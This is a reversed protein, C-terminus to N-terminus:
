HIITPRSRWVKILVYKNYAAFPAIRRGICCAPLSPSSKKQFCVYNLNLRFSNAATELLGSMFRCTILSILLGPMENTGLLASPMGNSSKNDDDWKNVRTETLYINWLVIWNWPTRTVWFTDYPTIILVCLRTRWLTVLHCPPEYVQRATLGLPSVILLGTM